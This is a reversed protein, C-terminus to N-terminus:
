LDEWRRSRTKRRRNKHIYTQIPRGPCKMYRMKIGQLLAPHLIRPESNRRRWKRRTM